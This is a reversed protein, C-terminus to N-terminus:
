YAHVAGLVRAVRLLANFHTNLGIQSNWVVGEKLKEPILLTDFPTDFVTRISSSSTIFIFEYKNNM